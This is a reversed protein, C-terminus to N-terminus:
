ASQSHQVGGVELYADFVAAALRAAQPMAPNVTVVRHRVTVAGAECLPTLDGLAWDLSDPAADYRGCVEGLDVCLGCMLREIVDRRLRDESTLAIGRAVPLDGTRLAARYAPTAALNQVYGQPLASIASAGFGLLIQATDTTYGQFNRRLTGQRAAQALSDEPRAFHDLGIAQYGAGTITAEALRALALREDVDPLAETPILAQHKKFSPVHAYGFVAIRQPALALTASLTRAFSEPTQHPLGYVLDLNIGTIGNRRLLALCQEVEAMPQIRNIAVQVKPDCDQIGLSARTVGCDALAAAMAADFGRPDIEVAFAADPLVDFRARVARNLRAMDDPTLITPSGGGWHIHSVTRRGPLARAAMELEDLLLDLYEAVPTYTNVVPTHCACVRCLTDCFPIHFYLSLPADAPLVALWDRYRAPTVGPHFHPATPYSTYRPAHGAFIAKPTLM